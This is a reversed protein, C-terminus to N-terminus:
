ASRRPGNDVHFQGGADHFFRWPSM